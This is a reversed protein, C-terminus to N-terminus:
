LSCFANKNRTCISFILCIFLEATHRTYGWFDTWGRPATYFLFLVSYIAGLIQFPNEIKRIGSLTIVVASGTIALVIVKGVDETNFNTRLTEIHEWIKALLGHFPIGWEYPKAMSGVASSFERFRYYIFGQWCAYAIFPISWYIIRKYKGQLIDFLAISIVSLIALERTLVATSFILASLLPKNKICYVYFGALLTFLYFLEITSRSLSIFSWLACAYLLSLYPTVGFHRCYLAVIFAGLAVGFVNLGVIAYPVRDMSGGSLTWALLPMLIRQYRYPAGDTCYPVDTRMFPDLAMYFYFQGDYRTRTGSTFRDTLIPPCKQPDSAVNRGIALLGTINGGYHKRCVVTLFLLTGALVVIFIAGPKVSKM